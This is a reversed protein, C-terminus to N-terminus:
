ITICVIIIQTAEEATASPVTAAEATDQRQSQVAGGAARVREDTETDRPLFEVIIM